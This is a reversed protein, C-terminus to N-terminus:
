CKGFNYDFTNFDRKSECHITSSSIKPQNWLWSNCHSSALSTSLWRLFVMGFTYLAM